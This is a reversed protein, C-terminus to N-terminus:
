YSKFSRDALVDIGNTSEVDYDVGTFVSLTSVILKSEVISTVIFGTVRFYASKIPILAIERITRTINSLQEITYTIKFAIYFSTIVEVRSVTLRIRSTLFTLM